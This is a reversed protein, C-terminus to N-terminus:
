HGAEPMYPMNWNPLFDYQVGPAVSIPGMEPHPGGDLTFSRVATHKLWVVKTPHLTGDSVKVLEHYHIFGTSSYSEAKEQSWIDIIGEVEYLLEGDPADSSWWQQAGGPGTNYHKGKLYNAGFKIWEHGPVDLGGGPAPPGALYYDEGDVNLVIGSVYEELPLLVTDIVHIVGNSAEIDTIVVKSDNIMVNGDMVSISIPKGLATTASSLKVVDAAMVKGSVVHYLLINQLTSIDQLLGEVTGPPLKNFADDTPAFVTYPGKGKLTDVLEAAQVAAVLTTFRGDEVAIDVIDKPKEKACSVVGLTSILSALIGFIIIKRIMSGGVRM